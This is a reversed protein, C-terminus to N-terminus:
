ILNERKFYEIITKMRMTNCRDSWHWFSIGNSIHGNIYNWDDQSPEFDKFGRKYFLEVLRKADKPLITEADKQYINSMLSVVKNSFAFYKKSFKDIKHPKSIYKRGRFYEQRLEIKPNDGKTNKYDNYWVFWERLCGFHGFSKEELAVTGGVSEELNKNLFLMLDSKYKFIYLHKELKSTEHPRFWWEYKRHNRIKM